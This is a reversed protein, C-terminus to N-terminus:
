FTLICIYDIYDSSLLQFDSSDPISPPSYDNMTMLKADNMPEPIGDRKFLHFGRM